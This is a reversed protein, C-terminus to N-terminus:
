ESFESQDDEYVDIEYGEEQEEIESNASNETESGSSVDDEIYNDEIEDDRKESVYVNHPLMNSEPFIFMEKASFKKKGDELEPKTKILDLVDQCYKSIADRTLINSGEIQITPIDKYGYNKLTIYVTNLVVYTPRIKFHELLRIIKVTIDIESM